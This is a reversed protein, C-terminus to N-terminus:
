FLSMQETLSERTVGEKFNEGSDIQTFLFKRFRDFERQAMVEEASRPESEGRLIRELKFVSLEEDITRRLIELRNSVPFMSIKLAHTLDIKGLHVAKKIEDEM